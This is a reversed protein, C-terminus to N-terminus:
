TVSINRKQRYDLENSTTLNKLSEGLHENTFLEHSIGSLTAIQQSRFFASKSPLNVEKDWSLVAISNNVDAIKVMYDKYEQYNMLTGM